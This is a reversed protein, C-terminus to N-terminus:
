IFYIGAVYVADCYWDSKEKEDIVKDIRKHMYYYTYMRILMFVVLALM